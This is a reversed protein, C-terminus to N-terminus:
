GKSLQTKRKDKEHFAKTLKSLNSKGKIDKEKNEQSM